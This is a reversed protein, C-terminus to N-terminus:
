GGGGKDEHFSELLRCPVIAADHSAWATERATMRFARRRTAFADIVERREHGEQFVREGERHL